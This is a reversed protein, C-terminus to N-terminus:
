RGADGVRTAIQSLTALGFASRQREGLRAAIRDVAGRDLLDGVRVLIPTWDFYSDESENVLLAELDAASSVRASVEERTLRSGDNLRLGGIEGDNRDPRLDDATLGLEGLDEGMSQLALGVGRRWQKRTTPLGFVSAQSLLTRGTEFVDRGEAQTKRMLAEALEQSGSRALPVLFEAVTHVAIESPLMGAALADTVISGLADECRVIRHRIFFHLLSMARRDSCRCCASLLETGASSVARSEIVDELTPLARVFWLIRQRAGDHDVKNARDLWAIWDDLQYDKRYGVGFSVQLAREILRRANEPKGIARWAEAQKQCESVRGSVDEGELM